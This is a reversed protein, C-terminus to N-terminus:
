AKKPKTAKADKQAKELLAIRKNLRQELGLLDDQMRGLMNFLTLAQQNVNNELQQLGAADALPAAESSSTATQQAPVGASLDEEVLQCLTCGFFDAIRILNELSPEAEGRTYSGIVSRKKGIIEGLRDQTIRNSKLLHRFNQPFYNSAM